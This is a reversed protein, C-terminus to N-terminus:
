ANAANARKEKRKKRYRLQRNRYYEKEEETAVGEGIAESVAIRRGRFCNACLGLKYVEVKQKTREFHATCYSADTM